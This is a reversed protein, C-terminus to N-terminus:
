RPPHIVARDAGSILFIEVAFDRGLVEIRMAPEAAQIHDKLIL